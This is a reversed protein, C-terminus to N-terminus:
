GRRNGSLWARYTATAQDFAARASRDSSFLAQYARDLEAKGAESLGYRHLTAARRAPDMALDVELSAYQSVALKPKAAPPAGGPPAGGGGTLWSKYAAFAHSFSAYLARDRAFRDRWAADLSAKAALSLRYRALSEQARDPRLELEACLSAYQEITLTLAGKAEPSEREAFPLAPGALFASVDQTGEANKTPSPTGEANKTPSPKSQGPFPLAPGALFAGVDQTGGANSPAQPRAKDAEAPAAPAAAASAAQPPAATGPAFPLPPGSLFASVDQTAVAKEPVPLPAPPPAAPSPSPSQLPVGILRPPLPESSAGLVAPPSLLRPGAELHAVYGPPPEASAPNAAARRDEATTRAAFDQARDLYRRRLTRFERERVPEGAIYAQFQADLARHQAESEVKYKARIREVEAPFVELEASLGAYRDIGFIEIDLPASGAGPAPSKAEKPAAQAAPAAKAAGGRRSRKLQAPEAKVRPLEGPKPLSTVKAAISPNEDLRRQWLRTLRSVDNVGLGCQALVL